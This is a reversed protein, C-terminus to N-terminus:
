KSAKIVLRYYMSRGAIPSHRTIRVVNGVEAKISVAAPDSAYIKPLQEKEINYEALVKELEGDDLVEHNPVMVHELPNFERGTAETQKKKM